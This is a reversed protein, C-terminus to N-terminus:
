YEVDIGLLENLEDQTAWRPESDTAGLHYYKKLVPMVEDRYAKRAADDLDAGAAYAKRAKKNARNVAAQIARTAGKWGAMSSYLSYKNEGLPFPNKRKPNGGKAKRLEKGFDARVKDQAEQMTRATGIRRGSRYLV